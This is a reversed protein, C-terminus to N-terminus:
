ADSHVSRVPLRLTITSGKGPNASFLADGHHEELIEKLSLAGTDIGSIETSFEQQDPGPMHGESIGPGNDEIEILAFDEKESLKLNINVMRGDEPMYHGFKETRDILLALFLNQIEVEKLHLRWPFDNSIELELKIDHFPKQYQLFKIISRFMTRIDVFGFDCAAPRYKLYRATIEDLRSGIENIERLRDQIHMLDLDTIGVLLQDIKEKALDFREKLGTIIEIMSRQAHIMKDFDIQAAQFMHIQSLDQCIALHLIEENRGALATVIMNVPFEENGRVGTVELNLSSDQSQNLENLKLNNFLTRINIRGDAQHINFLKDASKNARLITGDRDVLFMASPSLDIVTDLFSNLELLKHSLTQLHRNSEALEATRQSDSERLKTSLSKLVQTAFSPQESIIKEFNLKSFELVECPTEAKITAFRPSEEVLAMEGIFEGADRTAIVIKQGTHPTKKSVVVTGSLILLMTNGTDGEQIITQGPIYKSYKGALQKLFLNLTSKSTIDKTAKM